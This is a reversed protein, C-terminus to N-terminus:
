RKLVQRGLGTRAQWRARELEPVATEQEPWGVCLYAVFRWGDPVALDREVSRPELISVWGLGVGHSRLALWFTQVAQVVSYRRTEPMSAQGLGFGQRTAEDCFVALQVPAEELGALKLSAYLARRESAQAALAEANATRFNARVAERASESEVAVFRWPQSNGVSPSLCALDLAAEVIAPPVPDRRFRRVDRRWRLLAAFEARFRADFVPAAEELRSPRARIERFAPHSM